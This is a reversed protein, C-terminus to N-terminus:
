HAALMSKVETLGLAVQNEDLLNAVSASFVDLLPQPWVGFLLVLVVLPAFV